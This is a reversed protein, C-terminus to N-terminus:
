PIGRGPPMSCGALAGLPEADLTLEPLAGSSRRSGPDDAAEVSEPAEGSPALARPDQQGLISRHEHPMNQPLLVTQRHGFDLREEGVDGLVGDHQCWTGLRGPWIRTVLQQPIQEGRALIQKQDAAVMRELGIRAILVRTRDGRARISPHHTPVRGAPRGRARSDTGSIHRRRPNRGFGSAGQSTVRSHTGIRRHQAVLRIIL